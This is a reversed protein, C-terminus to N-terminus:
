RADASLVARVEDPIPCASDLTHRYAGRAGPERRVLDGLWRVAADTVSDTTPGIAARVLGRLQRLSLGEPHAQLTRVVAAASRLLVKRFSENERATRLNVVVAPCQGPQMVGDEDRYASRNIVAHKGRKDTTFPIELSWRTGDSDTWFKPAPVSTAAQAM